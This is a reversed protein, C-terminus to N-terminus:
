KEKGLHYKKTYYRQVPTLPNKLFEDIVKLDEERQQEETQELM